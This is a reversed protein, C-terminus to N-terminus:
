DNIKINYYILESVDLRNKLLTKKEIWTIIDCVDNDSTIYERTDNDDCRLSAKRDVIKKRIM